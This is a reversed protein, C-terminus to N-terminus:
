LDLEFTTPTVVEVAEGGRFTPQYKWQKVANMTTAATFEKVKPEATLFMLDQIAGERGVTAETVLLGDIGLHFAGTPFEPKV